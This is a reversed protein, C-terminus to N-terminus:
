QLTEEVKDEVEGANGSNGEGEEEQEVMFPVFHRAVDELDNAMDVTRNAIQVAVRHTSRFDMRLEKLDQRLRCLEEVLEQFGFELESKTEKVEKAKGKGKDVAVKRKKSPGAESEEGAVVCKVKLASCSHCAKTQSSAEPWLCKREGKWCEECIRGAKMRWVIKRDLMASERTREEEKELQAEMETESEPRSRKLEKKKRAEELQKRLVEAERQAFEKMTRAEEEERKRREEARREAERKEEAKREEEVRMEELEKALREEELREQEAEEELQRHHEELQKCTNAREALKAAVTNATSSM